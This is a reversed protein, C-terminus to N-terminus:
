LDPITDKELKVFINGDPTEIKGETNDQLNQVAEDVSKKYLRVNSLLQLELLTMDIRSLIHYLYEMEHFSLYSFFDLKNIYFLCGEYFVDDHAEDPVLTPELRIVKQSTPIDSILKSAAQRNLTLRGVKDIYYLSKIEKFGAIMRKLAQLFDFLGRQNLNVTRNTNWGARKDEATSIDITIFPHGAITFYNNGEFDFERITQQSYPTQDNDDIIINFSLM